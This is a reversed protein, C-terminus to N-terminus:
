RVVAKTLNKTTYNSGVSAKNFARVLYYNTGKLQKTLKVNLKTTSKVLTTYKKTKVNYKYVRYFKANQVKAWKLTVTKGSVTAKAKPASCLTYISVNDAATYPSLVTTGNKDKGIARVLYVYQTGATRGKRTYSLSKTDAIKSYKGTKINYGYVRYATAGAVKKWSLAIANVGAKATVKPKGLFISYNYVLEDEFYDSSITLKASYTGIAKSEAPYEIHYQDTTLDKGEFWLYVGLYQNKGNYYLTKSNAYGDNFGEMEYDVFPLTRMKVPDQFTCQRCAYYFKGEKLLGSKERVVKYIDHQVYHVIIKSPQEGITIENGAVQNTYKLAADGEVTYNSFHATDTYADELSTFAVKEGKIHFCNIGDFSQGLYIGSESYVSLYSYLVRAEIEGNQLVNYCNIGTYSTKILSVGNYTFSSLGSGFTYGSLPKIRFVLTYTLDKQPFFRGSRMMGDSCYWYTLTVEANPNGADDLDVYSSADFRYNIAVDNIQTEASAAFPVAISLLMVVALLLSVVKKM